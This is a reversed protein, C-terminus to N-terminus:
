LSDSVKTNPHRFFFFIIQNRLNSGIEYIRDSKTFEIRNQFQVSRRPKAHDTGMWWSFSVVAGEEVSEYKQHSVRGLFFSM